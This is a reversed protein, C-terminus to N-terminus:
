DWWCRIAPTWSSRYAILRLNSMTFNGMCNTFEGSVILFALWLSASSVSLSFTLVQPGSNMSMNISSYVSYTLPPLTKCIGSDMRCFTWSSSCSILGISFEEHLAYSEFQFIICRNRTEIKVSVPGIYAWLEWCQYIVQTVLSIITCFAIWIKALEFYEIPSVIGDDPRDKTIWLTISVICIQEVLIKYEKADFIPCIKQYLDIGSKHFRHLSNTIFAFAHYNIQSAISVDHLWSSRTKPINGVWPFFCHLVEFKEHVPLLLASAEM